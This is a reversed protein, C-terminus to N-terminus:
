ESEESDIVEEKESTSEEDIMDSYMDMCEESCFFVYNRVNFDSNILDNCIECNLESKQCLRNIQQRKQKIKKCLKVLYLSRNYQEEILSDRMEVMKNYEKKERLIKKM